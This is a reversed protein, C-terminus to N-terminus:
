ITLLRNKMMRLWSIIIATPYLEKWHKKLFYLKSKREIEYKNKLNSVSQSIKHIVRFGLDKEAIIGIKFGAKKARLCFDVDEWFLFFKEDFYGIKEFVKPKVFMSCGSVWDIANKNSSEVKSELNTYEDIRINENKDDIIGPEGTIKNLKGGAFWIKGKDDYIVPSFIDYKSFLSNKGTRIKKVATDPNLLWILDYQQLTAGESKLAKNIGGAFGLNKGPKIVQYKKDVEVDGFNDVIIINFNLNLNSLSKLCEKLSSNSKYAVIIILVNM